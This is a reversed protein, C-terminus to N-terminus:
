LEIDNDDDDSDVVDDYNDDVVVFADLVGDHDEYICDQLYSL